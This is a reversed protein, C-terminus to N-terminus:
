KRHVAYQYVKVFTEVYVKVFTPNNQGAGSSEFTTRAATNGARLALTRAEALAANHRSAGMAKFDTRKAPM